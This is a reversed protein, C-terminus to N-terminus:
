HILDQSYVESTGKHVEEIWVKKPDSHAIQALCHAMKNCVRPISQFQCMDLQWQFLQIEKLIQRGNKWKSCFRFVKANDGEILVRWFGCEIAVSHLLAFAEALSVDNPGKVKWVVAAM